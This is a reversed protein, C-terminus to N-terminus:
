PADGPLLVLETPFSLALWVWAMVPRAPRGTIAATKQEFSAGRSQEWGPLLAVGHASHLLRLSYEMNQTYPTEQEPPPLELSHVVDYGSQTLQHTADLFEEVYHPNGSIPGALYLRVKVPPADPTFFSPKAARPTFCPDALTPVPPGAPEEVFHLYNNSRWTLQHASQETQNEPISFELKAPTGEANQFVLHCAYTLPDFGKQEKEEWPARADLTVTARTTFRLLVGDILEFRSPATATARELFTWRGKKGSYRELFKVLANQTLGDM